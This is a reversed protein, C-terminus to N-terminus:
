RPAGAGVRFDGRAVGGDVVVQTVTIQAMVTGIAERFRTPVQIGKHEARSEISLRRQMPTSVGSQTLTGDHFLEVPLGTGADFVISRQFGDPGEFSLTVTSGTRSQIRARLPMIAPARLLCLLSQETFRRKMNRLANTRVSEDTVAPRQWYAAGDITHTVLGETQFRDPFLLRDVFPFQEGTRLARVGELRLTTVSTLRAAGGMHARARDLVAQADAPADIFTKGSADVLGAPLPLALWVAVCLVVRLCADSLTPDGEV